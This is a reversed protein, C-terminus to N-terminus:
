LVRATTIHEAQEFIWFESRQIARLAHSNSEAIHLAWAADDLFSDLFVSRERYCRHGLHDSSVDDKGENIFAFQSEVSSHTIHQRPPRTETIDAFDSQPM